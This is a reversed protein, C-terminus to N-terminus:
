DYTASDDPRASGIMERAGPERGGQDVTGVPTARSASAGPNNREASRAGKGGRRDVERLVCHAVKKGEECRKGLDARGIRQVAFRRLQHDREAVSFVPPKFRDYRHENLTLFIAHGVKACQGPFGRFPGACHERWETRDTRDLPHNMHSVGRTDVAIREAKRKDLSSAMM